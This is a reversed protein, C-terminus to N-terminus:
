VPENTQMENTRQLAAVSALALVLSGCVLVFVGRDLGVRYKPNM